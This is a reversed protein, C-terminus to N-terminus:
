QFKRSISEESYTSEHTVKEKNKRFKTISDKGTKIFILLFNLLTLLIRTHSIGICGTILSENNLLIFFSFFLTLESHLYISTELRTM